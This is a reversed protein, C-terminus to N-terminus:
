VNHRLQLSKEPFSGPLVAGSSPNSLIYSPRPMTKLVKYVRYLEKSWRPLNIKDFVGQKNLTLVRVVDDVQFKPPAIINKYNKALQDKRKHLIFRLVEPANDMTVSNPSRGISRHISNNYIALAQKVINWGSKSVGGTVIRGVIIRMSRIFSEALGTKSPNNSSTYVIKINNKALFDRFAKGQFESGKDSYASHIKFKFNELIKGMANATNKATLIRIPAVDALKSLADVAVLALPFQAKTAVGLYWIDIAVLEGPYSVTIWRNWISSKPKPIQKHMAYAPQTSLYRDVDAQSIQSHNQQNAILWLKKASVYGNESNYYLKELIEKKSKTLMVQYWRPAIRACVRQYIDGRPAGGPGEGGGSM